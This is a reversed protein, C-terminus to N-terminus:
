RELHLTKKSSEGLTSTGRRGHTKDNTTPQKKISRLNLKRKGKRQKRKEKKFEKQQKGLLANPLKTQQVISQPNQHLNIYQVQLYTQKNFHIM